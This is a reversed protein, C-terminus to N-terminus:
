EYLASATTSRVALVSSIKLFARFNVIHFSKSIVYLLSLCPLLCGEQGKRLPALPCFYGRSSAMYKKLLKLYSMIFIM